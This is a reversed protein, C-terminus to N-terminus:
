FMLVWQTYFMTPNGSTSADATQRAFRGRIIHAVGTELHLNGVLVEFRFRAELHHGLFSGAEGTEDRLGATTWADRSNALWFARYALFATTRSPFQLEVKLGPSHVNSRAFPGYIGTPGLEFREAGFLPDFRGNVNDNPDGDGSAFDYFISLRSPVSGAASYGLTAHQFFARHQRRTVDQSLASEHSSGLQAASEIEFDLRGSRPSRLIRFGPTILMRNRTAVRPTDREHLGLIFGEIIVDSLIPASTFHTGWLVSNLSEKDFQVTNDRVAPEAEPRRKVPLAAFGRLRLGNSNEWAFDIGTFANITNRYRNRAVFRRSGMDLTFRGLRLRAKSNSEAVDPLDIQLHLRVLALANVVRTDLPTNADALYARSDVLETQLSATESGLTATLHTRMVLVRDDGPRGNRFQNFVQEFRTRQTGGFVLWPPSNVVEYLRWPKHPNARPHSSMAMDPRSTDPPREPTPPPAAASLMWSGLLAASMTRTRM